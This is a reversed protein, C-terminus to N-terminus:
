GAFAAALVPEPAEEALLEYNEARKLYDNHTDAM